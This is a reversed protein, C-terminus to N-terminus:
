SSDNKDLYSSFIHKDKGECNIIVTKCKMFVQKSIEVDECRKKNEFDNAHYSGLIQSTNKYTIKQNLNRVRKTVNSVHKRCYFTHLQKVSKTEKYKKKM